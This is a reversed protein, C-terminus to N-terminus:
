RDGAAERRESITPAAAAENSSATGAAPWEPRAFPPGTTTTPAPIAPM